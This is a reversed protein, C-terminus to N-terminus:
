TNYVMSPIVDCVSVNAHCEASLVRLNASEARAEVIMHEDMVMTQVQPVVM